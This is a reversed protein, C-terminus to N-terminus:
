RVLCEHCVKEVIGDRVAFAFPKEEVFIVGRDIPSAAVFGKGIVVERVLERSAM